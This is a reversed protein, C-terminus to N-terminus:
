NVSQERRLRDLLQRATLGLVPHIVDPAIEALPELVFMRKHMWPHPVVLGPVVITMEDFLLLDLDITREDWAPRQEPAPRGMASEIAQIEALLAMATIDTAVSVVANLFDAQGPPGGEAPYSKAQSQALVQCDALGTLRQMAQELNDQRGSINSGLGIYVLHNHQM